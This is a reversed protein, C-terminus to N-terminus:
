GNGGGFLRAFHALAMPDDRVLVWGVNHEHDLHFPQAVYRLGHRVLGTGDDTPEAPIHAARADAIEREIFQARTLRIPARPPGGGAGPALHRAAQVAHHLTTAGYAIM